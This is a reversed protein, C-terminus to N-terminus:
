REDSRPEVRLLAPDLTSPQDQRTPPRRGPRGMVPGVPLDDVIFVPKFQGAASLRGIAERAARVHQRAMAEAQEPQNEGILRVIALHESLVEDIDRYALLSMGLVRYTETLKGMLENGAMAVIRQHFHRDLTGMETRRDTKGLEQVSRAMHELERLDGRNARDCALRAALGELVERIEYAALLKGAGLDAVFVGLHDVAEVLGLFRLELLSERVVSQAVGFRKALLMQTLRRGPPFEGTLIARQIQDRVWHRSVSANQSAPFSV